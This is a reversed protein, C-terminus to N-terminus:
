SLVSGTNSATNSVTISSVSAAATRVAAASLYNATSRVGLALSALLSLVGGAGVSIHMALTNQARQLLHDALRLVDDHLSGSSTLTDLQANTGAGYLQAFCGVMLALPLWGTLWAHRQSSFIPALVTGLTALALLAFLTQELPHSSGVGVFLDAPHFLIVGMQYFATHQTYRGFSVTLTSMTLWSLAILVLLSLAILDIRSNFYSNRPM